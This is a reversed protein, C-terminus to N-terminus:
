HICIIFKTLGMFYWSPAPSTWEACAAEVPCTEGWWRHRQLHVKKSALIPVLNTTGNCCHIKPQSKARCVALGLLLVFALINECPSVPKAKLVDCSQELWDPPVAITLTGNYPAPLEYFRKGLDNISAQRLPVESVLVVFYHCVWLTTVLLKNTWRMRLIPSLSWCQVTHWLSFDIPCM